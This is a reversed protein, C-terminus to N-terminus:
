NTNQRTWKLFISRKFMIKKRISIGDVVVELLLLLRFSFKFDVVM